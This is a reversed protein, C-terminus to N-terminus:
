RLEWRVQAFFSRGIQEGTPVPYEQHHTHLLNAGSLSLELTRSVRWGLRASMDYYSRLAPQPLSGVYRLATDFTLQQGIDVSSTLTAQSTPDDGAQGLGLLTSAGPEFRLNKHLLRFGPSLRWGELVQWDAWSTIGYTDGRMLNGWHLPLFVDASAPEITRLHRYSNYFTSVTLSIQASPQVRLGMEHASVTEPEFDPNGTLFVTSGAKEVVDVDFPTPSRIGRSAAAWIFTNTGPQWSLRADPLVSWGSYPDDELKLGVTVDVRRGLSLTDQAFLNALTLNRHTPEFLLSATNTIGYSNFREGAGWVLRNVSGLSLTQQLELDYTHLVFGSGDLSASRETQDFYAQVQLESHETRHRWRTLANAGLILLDGGALQNETGRYADGQLTFSDQGQDTDIRFGGQGKSWGDGATAGNGLDQAGRHFTKGYIRYATESDIRNGYRAGISQEENGAGASIVTGDTVYAPRTIINIVGNMANAGWLTGGPGSIVEIREVDDLDVDLADTYVGSYLPSYVSRGDILILLKNAFNQDEQHGGFGRAGLAYNSSSLQTVQLNPALRLVEPLSTAGSRVISDHTIVYVTAPAHRLPEPAKSVSTVEVNTLQELSMRELQIVPDVDEAWTLASGLIAALTAFTSLATEAPGCHVGTCKFRM